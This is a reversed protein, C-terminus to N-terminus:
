SKGRIFAILDAMQQIDIQAELGEPMASVTSVRLSKIRARPITTQGGGPLRFTVADATEEAITGGTSSGDMLDVTWLAYRDAIAHNPDLIDVLLAAPLHNRVEGLDPAFAIGNAGRYQHCASCVRAFVDRGRVPDGALATAAQYRAIVQARDGRTRRDGAAASEPFLARARARLADDDSMMMRIRLARDIEAASITGAAIADLLLRVRGSERVLARVAESRVVPTWRDWLGIFTRAVDPGNQAGLARVAAVQVAAPEVRELLARLQPAFSSVDRMALVRVADTRTEADARQDAVLQEAQQLVSAAGTRPLGIAEVIQLAARRISVPEPAFVLAAAM